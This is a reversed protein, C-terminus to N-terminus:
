ESRLSSRKAMARHIQKREKKREAACRRGTMEFTAPRREKGRESGALTDAQPSLFGEALLPSRIDGGKREKYPARPM